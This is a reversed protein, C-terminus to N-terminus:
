LGIILAVGLVLPTAVAAIVNLGMYPLLRQIDGGFRLAGLFAMAGAAMPILAIAGLAPIAERVIGALLVLFAVLVFTGYVWTSARIGYAIPFHVRGVRRDAEIDPFQNLLLLNNVLFFPVLAVYGALVSYEGTLAFHTGAVMLPGFALGPAILCLWPQRNLWRTYTLIIVVGLVGLPLIALGHRVLLYGGALVTVALSCLAAVGVANAADPHKVLSGSGGSFPTRSTQADLGSHFDQYENLTNVSIHAAVAGILVVLLDAVAVQGKSMLATALGLLVCVPALVLFPLRMSMLVSNM